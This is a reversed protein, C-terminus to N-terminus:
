AAVRFPLPERRGTPLPHGAGPRQRGADRLTESPSEGYLERYGVAFRGLHFFGCETAIRTVDDAPGAARLRRHAAALRREAVFRMPSMGRRSEFTQQLSRDGVRAVECLRGLTIPDGLHAEIWAELDALRTASLPTARAVASEGLLVEALMSIMRAESDRRRHPDVTPALAQALEAVAAAFAAGALGSTTLVRTSFVLGADGSPRRAAVEGALAQGRLRFSVMSGPPSKRTFESGPAVFFATGAGIDYQRQGYRYSFVQDIPMHLLPERTAGRVTQGLGARAWSIATDAGLLSHQDFAFEGSGHVVRSHAGDSRGVHSRVEDVDDSHFHQAWPPPPPLSRLNSMMPSLRSNARHATSIEFEASGPSRLEM